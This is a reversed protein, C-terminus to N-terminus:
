RKQCVVVWELPNASDPNEMYRILKEALWSMRYNALRNIKKQLLFKCQLALLQKVEFGHDKLEQVLDHKQYLEDHVPFCHPNANRLPKSVSENVADFILWGGDSLHNRIVKYIKTRKPADFHRIFRFTYVLDFKQELDLEFIDAQKINWRNEIGREELRKKAINLMAESADVLTGNSFNEIDVTLRAPGPALELIQDVGQERIVKNVTDVQKEHLIRFLPTKFRKEIYETARTEDFYYEKVDSQSNVTHMATM